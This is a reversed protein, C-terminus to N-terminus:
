YGYKQIPSLSKNNIYQQLTPSPSPPFPASSPCPYRYDLTVRAGELVTSLLPSKNSGEDLTSDERDSTSVEQDFTSVEQHFTSVEQDFTSVEQNRTSVEQDLTTGEQDLTSVEQVAELAPLESKDEMNMSEIETRPTSSNSSSSGSLPQMKNNDLGKRFKNNKKSKKRSSSNRTRKSGGKANLVPTVYDYLTTDARSSIDGTNREAQMSRPSPAHPHQVESHSEVNRRKLFTDRRLPRHQIMAQVFDYFHQKLQKFEKSVFRADNCPIYFGDKYLSLTPSGLWETYKDGHILQLSVLPLVREGYHLSGTADMKYGAIMRERKLEKLVKTIARMQHQLIPYGKTCFKPEFDPYKAQIAQVGIARSNENRFIINVGFKPNDGRAPLQYIQEVHGLGGILNGIEILHTGRQGWIGKDIDVGLHQVDHIHLTSSIRKMERVSKPCHLDSSTIGHFATLKRIKLEAATLDKELVKCKEQLQEFEYRSPPPPINFNAARNFTYFRTPPTSYM